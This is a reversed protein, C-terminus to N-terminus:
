PPPPYTSNPSSSSTSFHPSLDASACSTLGGSWGAAAEFSATLLRGAQRATRGQRGGGSVRQRRGAAEAWSNWVKQEGGRGSHVRVEVGQGGKRCKCVPMCSSWCTVDFTDWSLHHMQVAEEPGLVLRLSSYIWWSPRPGGPHSHADTISYSM